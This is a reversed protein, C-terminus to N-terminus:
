PTQEAAKAFAPWFPDFDPPVLPLRGREGFLVRESADSTCEGVAAAVIEADRLAALVDPAKEAACTLLLTGESISALPGMAFADCVARVCDSVPIASEDISMGVGSADAIECLGGLIGGETADHMATVGQDRVGVSVAALADKVVSMQWFLDQAQAALTRGVRAEVLAPYTVAMLATAEIAAGKTVIVIDGPRAMTTSVYHDHAGQAIMTAGGVMPFACGEYRGTHGTVISVDLHVCASHVADWMADLDGNSMSPPLNLDVSLFRPPLGSTVVDSALIHVAFWGAREWGYDPVIFFPDTTVVLVRDGLDLVASDVGHQPGILVAPDARGLRRSISKDFLTRDIKGLAYDAM